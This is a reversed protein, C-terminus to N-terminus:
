YIKISELHILERQTLTRVQLCKRRKHTTKVLLLSGAQIAANPSNEVAKVLMAVAEAELKDVNAQPEALGKLELARELKELRKQVEPQTAVEKTKVFWKKWWSGNKAPFEDSVTFGFVESLGTVAETVRDVDQQSAESLYVRVPIFRPLPLDKLDIGMSQAVLYSHVDTQLTRHESSVVDLARRLEKELQPITNGIQDVQETYHQFDDQQLASRQLRQLLQMAEVMQGRSQGLEDEFKGLRRRLESVNEGREPREVRRRLIHDLFFMLDEDSPHSRRRFLMDNLMMYDHPDVDRDSTAMMVALMAECRAMRRELETSDSSAM